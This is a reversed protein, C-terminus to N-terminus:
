IGEGADGPWRSFALVWLLVLGAIPIVAIFALNANMGARPLLRYLPVVWIVASVILWFLGGGFM